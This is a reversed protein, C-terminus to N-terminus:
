VNPKSQLKRPKGTREDKWRFFCVRSQRKSWKSLTRTSTYLRIQTEENTKSDRASIKERKLNEDVDVFMSGGKAQINGNIWFICRTMEREIKLGFEFEFKERKKIENTMRDVNDLCKERERDRENWVNSIRIRGKETEENMEVKRGQM